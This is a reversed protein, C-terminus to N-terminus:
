CSRTTSRNKLKIRSLPVQTSQRPRYNNLFKVTKLIDYAMQTNDTKEYLESLKISITFLVDYNDDKIIVEWISYSNKYFEIADNLSDALEYVQGFEM